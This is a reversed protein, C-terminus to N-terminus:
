RRFGPINYRLQSDARSSWLSLAKGVAKVKITQGSQTAMVKLVSM